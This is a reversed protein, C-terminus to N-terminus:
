LGPIVISVLPISELYKMDNKFKTHKFIASKYNSINHDTKLDIKLNQLEKASGRLRDFIEKFWSISEGFYTNRWKIKGKSTIYACAKAHKYGFLRPPLFVVGDNNNVFRFSNKKFYKNYKRAFKGNGVRPSGFTFVYDVAIGDHVLKRAMLQALAGGLSHGSIYISKSEWSPIQKIERLIEDYISTLSKYFGKHVKGFPSSTKFFNFDTKLDREDTTGRFSIQITEDNIALFGQTSTKNHSFPIVEEFGIKKLLSEIATMGNEFKKKNDWYSFEAFIVQLYAKEFSFGEPMLYNTLKKNEM